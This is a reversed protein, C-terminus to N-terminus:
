SGNTWLIFSRHPKPNESFPWMKIRLMHIRIVSHLNFHLQINRPFVENFGRKSHVSSFKQNIESIRCSNSIGPPRQVFALMWHEAFNYSYSSHFGKILRMRSDITLSWRFANLLIFHLWIFSQVADFVNWSLIGNWANGVPGAMPDTWIWYKLWIGNM